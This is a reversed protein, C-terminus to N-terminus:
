RGTLKDQKRSMTFKSHYFNRAYTIGTVFNFARVIKISKLIKNSVM